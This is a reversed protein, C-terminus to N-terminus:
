LTEGKWIKISLRLQKVENKYSRQKNKREALSAEIAAIEHELNSLLAVSHDLAREMATLAPDEDRELQMTTPNIKM